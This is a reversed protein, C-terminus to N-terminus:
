IACYGALVAHEVRKHIYIYIYIYTGMNVHCTGM